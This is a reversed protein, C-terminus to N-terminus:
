LPSLLAKTMGELIKQRRTERDLLGTLEVREQRCCLAGMLLRHTPYHRTTTALGPSLQVLRVAGDEGGALLLGGAKHPELATIPLESLQETYGTKNHGSTVAIGQM